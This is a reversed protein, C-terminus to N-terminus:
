TSPSPTRARAAAWPPTACTGIGLNGRLKATHEGDFVDRVMGNGKVMHFQDTFTTIGAADQGRHQIALLGEYIEGAVDTGEPGYIGIFGCM